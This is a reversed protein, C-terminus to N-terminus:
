PEPWSNFKTRQTKHRLRSCSSGCCGEEGGYELLAPPAEEEEEDEDEDEDKVSLDSGIKGRM